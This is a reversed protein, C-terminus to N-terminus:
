LYERREDDSVVNEVGADLLMERWVDQENFGIDGGSQWHTAMALVVVGQHDTSNIEVGVPNLEARLDDTLDYNYMDRVVQVADDIRKKAMAPDAGAWAISVNCFFLVGTSHVYAAGHPYTEGVTMAERYIANKYKLM